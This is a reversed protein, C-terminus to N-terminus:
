VGAPQRQRLSIDDCRAMLEPVSVVRPDAPVILPLCGAAEAVATSNILGAAHVAFRDNMLYSNGIIGVVPRLTGSM